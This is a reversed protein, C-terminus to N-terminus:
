PEESGPAGPHCGLIEGYAGVEVESGAEEGKEPDDPIDNMGAFAHGIEHFLTIYAQRRTIRGAELDRVVDEDIYIVIKDPNKDKDTAGCASENGTRLARPSRAVGLKAMEVVPGRNKALLRKIQKDTAGVRSKLAAIEADSFRTVDRILAATRPTALEEHAKGGKKRESKKKKKLSKGVVLRGTPDRNNIPDNAMAAYQNVSDTYGEPDRQLFEPAGVRGEREAVVAGSARGPVRVDVRGPVRADVRGPVRVDVRGPVRVDVRGHARAISPLVLAGLALLLAVARSM